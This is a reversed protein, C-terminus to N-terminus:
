GTNYQGSMPCVVGFRHGQRAHDHSLPLLPSGQKDALKLIASDREKAYPETDVEFCLKTIGWDSWVEPLLEQPKGYLVQADRLMLPMRPWLHEQEAAVLEKPRPLALMAHLHHCTLAPSPCVILRSGRTKLSSNLDSLSELLFQMRNVGVVAEKKETIGPDLCFIPYLHEAGDIADLLAPNDHLRLGKRFWMMSRGKDPMSSSHCRCRAKRTSSSTLHPFQGRPLRIVVQRGLLLSQSRLLAM